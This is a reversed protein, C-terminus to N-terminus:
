PWTASANPWRHDSAVCVRSTEAVSICSAIFRCAAAGAVAQLRGDRAFAALRRLRASTDDARRRRRVISSQRPRPALVISRAHSSPLRPALPLPENAFGLAARELLCRASVTHPRLRERPPSPLKPTASDRTARGLPHLGHWNANALVDPRDDVVDELIDNPTRHNAKSDALVDRVDGRGGDVHAHTM